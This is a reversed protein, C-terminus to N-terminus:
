NFNGYDPAKKEDSILKSSHVAQSLKELWNNLEIESSAAFVYSKQDALRLQFGFKNRRVNRYRLCRFMVIFLIKMLSSSAVIRSKEHNM